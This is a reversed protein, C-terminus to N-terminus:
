GVLEKYEEESYLTDWEHCEEAAVFRDSVEAFARPSTQFEEVDSRLGVNYCERGSLSRSVGTPGFAEAEPHDADCPTWAWGVSDFFIM